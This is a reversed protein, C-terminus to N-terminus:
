THWGSTRLSTSHHLGFRTHWGSDMPVTSFLGLWTLDGSLSLPGFGTTGWHDVPHGQSLIWFLIIKIKNKPIWIRLTFYFWCSNLIKVKKRNKKWPDFKIMLNPKQTETQLVCSVDAVDYGCCFFKVFRDFDQIMLLELLPERVQGDWLDMLTDVGILFWTM